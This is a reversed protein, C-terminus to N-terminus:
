VPRLDSQPVALPPRDGFQVTILRGKIAVIRFGPQWHHGPRCPPLVGPATTDEGPTSLMVAMDIALPPPQDPPMNVCWIASAM